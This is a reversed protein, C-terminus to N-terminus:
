KHQDAYKWWLLTAAYGTFSIFLLIFYSIFSLQDRSNAAINSFLGPVSWPFYNGHGTAAIVQAFVLTLAVFGLPTLYGKGSLAFFAVPSGILIVLFATGFYTEMSEYFINLEFGPLQLSGGIILGTLLNSVTLALSWIIYVIFKANIINMRGVPLALLDKATGDSYERGFIWSIVFGFVMIGGVAIVQCLIGLYSTWNAEISMYQAKAQLSSSKAALEPDGMIIMFVGGMVPGLLFAIFPVWAVKSNKTKLIEASISRLLNKM